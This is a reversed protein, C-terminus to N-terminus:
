RAVRTVEYGAAALLADRRADESRTPPRRHGPGDVEVVVSSGPWHVDVELGHLRVNVLAAERRADPLQALFADEKASRTGASGSLHLEIARELIGLNHRGSARKMARRTAALNFRKWYAAQHIVYALQHPTLTDSLDVLTRAVTTSPIGRVETVDLPDLRRVHHVDIGVPAHQTATVVAILTTPWRSVKCLEAATLHSVAAHPGSAFVAAM